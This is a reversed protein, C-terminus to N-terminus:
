AGAEKMCAGMLKEYDEEKIHPGVKDTGVTGLVRLAAAKGKSKAVQLIAAKVKEYTIADEIDLQAPEKEVAKPREVEVMKEAKLKPAPVGGATNIKMSIAAFEEASDFHFILQGHM